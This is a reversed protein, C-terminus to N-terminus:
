ATSVEAPGALGGCAKEVAARDGANGEHVHLRAASDAAATRLERLGEADVDMVGVFAGCALLDLAIARGLGKAGGSIFFTRGDFESPM